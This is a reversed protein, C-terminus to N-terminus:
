DFVDLRTQLDEIAPVASSVGLYSSQVAQGYSLSRLMVLMAAGIATLNTTSSTAVIALAAVIALYALGTYAPTSLGAAFQLKAGAQRARENAEGLQAQAKD